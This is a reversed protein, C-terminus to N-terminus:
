RKYCREARRKMMLKCDEEVHPNYAHWDGSHGIDFHCSRGAGRCLTIFNTPDCELEPAYEFPIKHHVELDYKTGCGACVGHNVLWKKRVTEWQPSRGKSSFSKRTTTRRELLYAVVLLIALFCLLEITAIM